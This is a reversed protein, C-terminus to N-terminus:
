RDRLRGELRDLSSSVAFLLRVLYICGATVFLTWAVWLYFLWTPLHIM